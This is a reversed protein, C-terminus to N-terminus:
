RLKMTLYKTLQSEGFIILNTVQWLTIMLNDYSIKNIPCWCFRVFAILRQRRANWGDLQCSV